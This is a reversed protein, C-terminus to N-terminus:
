PSPESEPEPEALNIAPISLALLTAVFTLIALAAFVWRFAAIVV